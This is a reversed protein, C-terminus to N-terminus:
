AEAGAEDTATLAHHLKPRMENTWADLAEDPIPMGTLWVAVDCADSLAERLEVVRAEAGEARNHVDLLEADSEDREKEVEALRAEAKALSTLYEVQQPDRAKAESWKELLNTNERNLDANESNLVTLRDELAVCKEALNRSRENCDVVNWGREVARAEAQAWLKALRVGNDTEEALRAEAEEARNALHL